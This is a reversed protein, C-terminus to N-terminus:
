LPIYHIEIESVRVDAQAISASGGVGGYGAASIDAHVDVWARYSFGLHARIPTEIPIVEGFFAPSWTRSGSLWWPDEDLITFCQGDIGRTFTGSADFEEVFIAVSASTLASAFAGSSYFFTGLVDFSPQVSLECPDGVPGFGTNRPNGAWVGFSTLLSARSPNNRASSLFFDRTGADNSGRNIVTPGGSAAPTPDWTFDYPHTFIM